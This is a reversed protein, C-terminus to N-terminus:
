CQRATGNDGNQTDAKVIHQLYMCNCVYAHIYVIAVAGPTEKRRRKKEKKGLFGGM